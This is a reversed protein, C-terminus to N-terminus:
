KLVVEGKWPPHDPKPATHPQDFEVECTPCYYDHQNESHTNISNTRKRITVHGNPCPTKWATEPNSM